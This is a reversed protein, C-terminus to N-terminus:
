HYNELQWSRDFKKKIKNEEDIKKAMTDEHFQQKFKTENLLDRFLPEENVSVVEGINISATNSHFVSHVLVNEGNQAFSKLIVCRYSMTQLNTEWLYRGLATREGGILCYNNNKSLYSIVHVANNSLEWEMVLRAEHTTIRHTANRVLVYDVTADQLVLYPWSAPIANDTIHIVPVNIPLSKVCKSVLENSTVFVVTAGFDRLRKVLNANTCLPLYIRVSWHFPLITRVLVLNRLAGFYEQETLLHLAFSVVNNKSRLHSSHARIIANHNMWDQIVHVSMDIVPQELYLRWHKVHYRTGRQKTHVLLVENVKEMHGIFNYTYTIWNDAYWDTFCNPYYYGLIDVHTRHVFDYTLIDTNGGTHRPGVVGLYPPDMDKLRTLFRETWQRSEM